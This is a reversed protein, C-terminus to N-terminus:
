AGDLNVWNTAEAEAILADMNDANHDPISNPATINPGAPSKLVPHPLWVNSSSAMPLPLASNSRITM